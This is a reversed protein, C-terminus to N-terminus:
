DGSQSPSASPGFTPGLVGYSARDIKRALEPVDAPRARVLDQLLPAVALDLADSDAVIPPYQMSKVSFTFVSAHRPPRDPQQFADSLAVTQNAPQLYGGYSVLALANPTSAYVLFDAATAIDTAHNFVCMGTLTGVTAPTGLSPMPMVDFRLGPVARLLPVLRRSGELMALKGRMFWNLPTHRALQAPTLTSGPVRLARVTQLLTAVNPTSSLALSTPQTSSDFLDGGGSYIFPAIGMLTADLHVGAVSPHHHVAWRAAQAFQAM